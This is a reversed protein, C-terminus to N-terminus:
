VPEAIPEGRLSRYAYATSLSFVPMAVLFGIGCTCVAAVALLFLLLMWLLVPGVNSSTLSISSKIADVVGEGKDVVGSLAFMTLFAFVLGPIICLFLGITTGLSVVISTLIGIGVNYGSFFRSLDAKRGSVVDFSMRLMGLSIITSLISTVINMASTAPTFTYALSEDTPRDDLADWAVAGASDMMSALISLGGIVAITLVTVILYPALNKTFALWGYRIAEVPDFGPRTVGTGPGPGGLPPAPPPLQGGGGSAGGAPTPGSPYPQQPHPDSGSSPPPPQQGPYPSSGTPDFPPPPTSM